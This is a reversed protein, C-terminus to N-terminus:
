CSLCLCFATVFSSASNTKEFPIQGQRMTCFIERSFFSQWLQGVALRAFLLRYCNMTKGYGCLTFTLSILLTAIEDLEYFALLFYDRWHAATCHDCILTLLGFACGLSKWEEACLPLSATSQSTFFNNQVSLDSPYWNKGSKVSPFPCCFCSSSEPFDLYYYFDVLLLLPKLLRSWWVKSCAVRYDGRFYFM